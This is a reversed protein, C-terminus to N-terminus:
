SLRGLEIQGDFSEGSLALATGCFACEATLRGVYWQTRGCGPCHNVENARYVVVYGRFAPDHPLPPPAKAPVVLKLAPRPM